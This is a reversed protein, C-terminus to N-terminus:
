PREKKQLSMWFALAPQLPETLVVCGSLAVPYLVSGGPRQAWLVLLEVGPHPGAASRFEFRGGNQVLLAGPFTVRTGPLFEQPGFWARRPPYSYSGGTSVPKPEPLAEWLVEVAAPQWPATLRGSFFLRNKPQCIPAVPSVDALKTAVEHTLVLRGQSFALGVGMHTAEPVLLTRRHGDAPPKEALMTKTLEVALSPIEEPSLPSTTQYSGVNERHFGTGGALLYRLYPAVGDSAFHGSRGEALLKECFADGVKQLLPDSALPALGHESRAQNVLKLVQNRAIAWPDTNASLLLM